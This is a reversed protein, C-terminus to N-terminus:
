IFAQLSQSFIFRVIALWTTKRQWSLMSIQKIRLHTENIFSLTLTLSVIKSTTSPSIRYYVSMMVTSINKTSSIIPLHLRKKRGGKWKKLHSFNENDTWNLKACKSRVNVRKVWNRLGYHIHTFHSICINLSITYATANNGIRDTSILTPKM